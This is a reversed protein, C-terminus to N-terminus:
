ADKGGALERKSFIFAVVGVMAVAAILLTAVIGFATQDSALANRPHPLVPLLLERVQHTVSLRALETPINGVGAELLAGWLLGIVIYKSTLVGSLFGAAFAVTVLVAQALLLTPVAATVGPINKLLGLAVVVGLPLLYQLQLCVLHSIFRFAVFAPRPVPRTLTYDVAGTQMDDRVAGAGTLFSLIPLLGSFYIYATWPGFSRIRGERIMAFGIVFLLALLVLTLVLQGVSLFRPYTLRWIGGFAHALNPAVRPPPFTSAPANM